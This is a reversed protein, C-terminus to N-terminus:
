SARWHFWRIEQFSCGHLWSNSFKWVLPFLSSFSKELWYFLLDLVLILEPTPSNEEKSTHLLSLKSISSNRANLTSTILSSQSNPSLSSSTIQNAKLSVKWKMKGTRCHWHMCTSMSSNRLSTLQSNFPSRSSNRRSSSNLLVNVLRSNNKQALWLRLMNSMLSRSYILRLATSLRLAKRSRKLLPPM